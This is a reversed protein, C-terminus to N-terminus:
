RNLIPVESNPSIRVLAPKPQIRVHAGFVTTFERPPRTIAVVASCDTVRVVRCSQDGYRITDGERLRFSHVDRQKRKFSQFLRSQARDADRRAQEAQERDRAIREGDLTSEQFLNFTEPTFGFEHQPIHIRRKRM